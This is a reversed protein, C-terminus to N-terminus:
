KTKLQEQLADWAAKADKGSLGEKIFDGVTKEKLEKVTIEEQTLTRIPM